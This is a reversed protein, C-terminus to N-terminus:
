FLNSWNLFVVILGLIFLIIPMLMNKFEDKIKIHTLIAGGMTVVIMLGGITALPKVWIGILVIVGALVEFIGTFIRFSDGYGFYHFGQKMDESVFKQYGFMLFGIGLLVQLIISVIM